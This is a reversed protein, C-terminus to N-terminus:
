VSVEVLKKFFYLMCIIGVVIVVIGIVSNIMTQFINIGLMMGLVFLIGILIIVCTIMSITNQKVLSQQEKKMRTFEGIVRRNHNVTDNFNSSYKQAIYLSKIIERFKKHEIKNSLNELAYEIKREMNQTEAVCEILCSSLPENVKPAIQMFVSTLETNGTSYNGLLNLFNVLDDSVSSRNRIRMIFLYIYSASFIGGAIVLAQFPKKFLLLYLLAIIFSTFFSTLFYMASTKIKQGSKTKYFRSYKYTEDFWRTVSCNIYDAVYRNHKQKAYNDDSKQKAKEIQSNLVPSRLLGFVFLCSSLLIIVFMITHITSVGIFEFIKVM